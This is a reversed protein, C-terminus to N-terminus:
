LCEPVYPLEAFFCPEAGPQNLDRHILRAHASPFIMWIHDFRDRVTWIFRSTVRWTVKGVPALNWQLRQLPLFNALLQRLSQSRKSLNIALHKHQTVHLVQANFFSCLCQLNR